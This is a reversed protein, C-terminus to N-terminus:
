PSFNDNQKKKKLSEQHQYQLKCSSLYNIFDPSFDNALSLFLTMLPM